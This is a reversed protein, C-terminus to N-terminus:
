RDGDVEAAELSLYGLSAQMEKSLDELPDIIALGMPNLSSNGTPITVIQTDTVPPPNLYVGSSLTSWDALDFEPDVEQVGSEWPSNFDIRLIQETNKLGALGLGATASNIVLSYTPDM